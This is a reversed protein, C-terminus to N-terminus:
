RVAKAPDGSLLHRSVRRRPPPPAQSPASPPSPVSPLPRTSETLALALLARRIEDIPANVPVGVYGVVRSGFRSPLRREFREREPIPGGIVLHDVPHADLHRAFAAVCRALHRESLAVNRRDVHTGASAWQAAADGTGSPSSSVNWGHQRDRHPAVGDFVAPYELLEGLHFDFVRMKEHDILALAFRPARALQDQLPSLFPSPGSVIQDNVPIPLAITRLWSDRSCAVLVLGRTSSRQFQDELWREIMAVNGDLAGRVEPNAADADARVSQALIKFAQLVDVRRPRQGGDVNLYCTTVISADHRHELAGVERSIRSTVISGAM